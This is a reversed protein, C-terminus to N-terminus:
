LPSRPNSKAWVKRVMRADSPVPETQSFQTLAVGVDLEKLDVLAFDPRAANIVLVFDPYFYATSRGGQISLAMPLDNTDVLVDTNRALRISRRSVVTDSVSRARGRDIQQSTPLAWAGQSGSLEDFAEMMRRHPDGVETEIDISISIRSAALNSQLRAIELRRLVVAKEAKWRM